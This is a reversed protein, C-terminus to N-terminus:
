KVRVQYQATMAQKAALARDPQIRLHTYSDIPAPQPKGQVQVMPQSSYTKGNDISYTVSAGVNDLLKVSDPVLVTRSPVPQTMVFQKMPTTSHNNAALTYRLLNGPVVAAQKSDLAQWQVTTKTTKGKLTQTTGREVSLVLKVPTKEAIPKQAVVKQPIVKQVITGGANIAKAVLPTGDFPMMVGATLCMAAAAYVQKHNMM